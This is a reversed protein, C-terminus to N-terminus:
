YFVKQPLRDVCTIEPSQRITWTENLTIEAGPLLQQLPTLSEFEVFQDCLYTEANCGYDPYNGVSTNAAKKCFLIGDLWYAMWGRANFTGWKGPHADIIAMDIFLYDDKYHVRPDDWRNYPWFSLHRDPLLNDSNPTLTGTPFYAKGGPRLMTISWAACDIPITGTNRLLHSLVVQSKSSDVDVRIQKQLGNIANPAGILDFGHAQELVQLGSDDPLYTLPKEEPAAWLRHGGVFHYTGYPTEEIKGPVEALMNGSGNLTLGVIRPGGESLFSIELGDATFTQYTFPFNAQM